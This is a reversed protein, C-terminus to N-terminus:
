AVRRSRNSGTRLSADIIGDHEEDAFVARQSGQLEWLVNPMAASELVLNNVGTPGRRTSM